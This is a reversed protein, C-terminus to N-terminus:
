AKTPLTLHTYSVPVYGDAGSPHGALGSDKLLRDLGARAGFDGSLGQTSRGAVLAPDIALNIGSEGAYRSLAPGLPGAPIAYSRVAQAAPAAQAQAASAAGTLALALLAGRVAAPLRKAHLRSASTRTLAPRSGPRRHAM